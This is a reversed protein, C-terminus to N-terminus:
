DPIHHQRFRCPKPPLHDCRAYVGNKRNTQSLKPDYDLFYDLNAHRSTSTLELHFEPVVPDPPLSNLAPPHHIRDPTTNFPFEEYRGTPLKQEAIIETLPDSLQSPFPPPFHAARSQGTPGQGLCSSSRTLAHLGALVRIRHVTGARGAPMNFKPSANSIKEPRCARRRSGSRCGGFRRRFPM